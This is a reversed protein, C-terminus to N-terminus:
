AWIRGRRFGAGSFSVSSTRQGSAVSFPRLYFTAIRPASASRVATAHRSKESATKAKAADDSTKAAVAAKATKEPAKTKRAM